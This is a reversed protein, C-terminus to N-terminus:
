VAHRSCWVLGGDLYVREVIKEACDPPAIFRIRVRDAEIMCSAVDPSSLLADFARTLSPRSDFTLVYVRM